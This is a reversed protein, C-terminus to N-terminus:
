FCGRRRGITSENGDPMLLKALTSSYNQTMNTNFSISQKPRDLTEYKPTLNVSVHNNHNNLNSARNITNAHLSQNDTSTNNNNNSNRSSCAPKPGIDFLKPQLFKREITGTKPYQGRGNNQQQQKLRRQQNRANTSAFMRRGLTGTGPGTGYGTSSSSSHNSCHNSASASASVGTSENTTTPSNSHPINSTTTTTQSKSNSNSNQSILNTMETNEHETIEPSNSHSHSSKNIESDISSTNQLCSTSEDSNETRNNRYIQKRRRKVKPAATSATASASAATQKAQQAKQINQNNKKKKSRISSLCFYVALILSGLILVFSCMVMFVLLLNNSNAPGLLGSLGTKAQNIVAGEFKYGSIQLNKDANTRYIDSSFDKAPLIKQLKNNFAYLLLVLNGNPEKTISKIKVENKTFNSLLQEAKNAIEHTQKSPKNRNRDTISSGPSSKSKKRISADSLMLNDKYSVLILHRRGVIPVILKAYDLFNNPSNDRVRLTVTFKGHGYDSLTNNVKVLVRTKSEQYLAFLNKHTVESYFKQIKPEQYTTFTRSQDDFTYSSGGLDIREQEVALEENYRAETELDKENQYYVSSIDYVLDEVGDKDGAEFYSITKGVQTDYWLAYMQESTKFYPPNDNINTIEVTVPLISSISTQKNPNLKLNREYLQCNGFTRENIAHIYVGYEKQLEYDVYNTLRLEDGYLKFPVSDTETNRNSSRNKNNKSNKRTQMCYNIPDNEDEDIALPINGIVYGIETNEPVLFKTNRRVNSPWTPNRDLVDKIRVFVEIRICLQQNLENKGANAKDCIKVPTEIINHWYIPLKERDIKNKNKLCGSNREIFFYDEQGQIEYYLHANEGLDKDNTYSDLCIITTNPSSEEYLDVYMPSKMFDPYNDNTDKVNITIRLDDTATNDTGSTGSGTTGALDIAAIYIVIKSAVERDVHSTATSLVGTESDLNFWSSCRVPNTSIVKYKLNSDTDLDTAQFRYIFKDIKSNELITFETVQNNNWTPKSDNIDVITIYLRCTTFHVGDSAQINVMYRNKTEYDFPQNLFMLGTEPNMLFMKEDEKNGTETREDNTIRYQIHSMKDEDTAKAQFIVFNTPTDEGLEIYYQKKEFRPKHDNIDFVTLNLVSTDSLGGSDTVILNGLFRHSTLTEADLPPNRVTIQATKPDIKFYESIPLASNQHDILSYRIPSIKPNDQDIAQIGRTEHISVKIDNEYIYASYTRRTFKPNHNNIDKVTITLTQMAEKHDNDYVCVPLKIPTDLHQRFTNHKLEKRVSIYGKKHDLTFFEVWEDSCFKYIFKHNDDPDYADVKYIIEGAKKDENIILSHPLNRIVPNNDNLDNVLVIVQTSGVKNFTDVATVSITFNLIEERDFSVSSM